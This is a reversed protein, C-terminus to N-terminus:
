PVLRRRGIAERVLEILGAATELSVPLVAIGENNTLRVADKETTVLTLGATDARRRLAEIDSATFPHHDAFYEASIVTLGAYELTRFFKAPRGIGAFALLPKGMLAEVSAQDPRLAAAFVPKGWKALQANWSAAEVAGIVLFCDIKEIQRHIPARLPGAPFCRGNGFPDGADVVAVTFDKKLRPNQLGDDLLVITAGQRQALKAGALRDRSVITPVQRVLLLPEDGCDAATMAAADVLVPGRLRGGYGRSVVFPTEGAERLAQALMLVCPTKGAGGLTLNGVCIVPLAASQSARNMRWATLAGYLWGLPSLLRAVLGDKEWFAPARM